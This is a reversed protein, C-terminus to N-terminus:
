FSARSFAGIVRPLKSRQEVEDRPKQGEYTSARVGMVATVRRLLPGTLSRVDVTLGQSRGM